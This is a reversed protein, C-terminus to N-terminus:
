VPVLAVLATSGGFTQVWTSTVVCYIAFVEDSKTTM